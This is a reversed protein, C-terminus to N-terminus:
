EEPLNILGLLDPEDALVTKVVPLQVWRPVSTDYAYILDDGGCFVRVVFFRSDKSWAIRTENIGREEEDRLVLQEGAPTKLKVRILSDPFGKLEYVSVEKTKDPSQARGITTGFSCSALGLLTFSRLLMRDRFM